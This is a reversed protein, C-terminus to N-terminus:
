TEDRRRIGVVCSRPVGDPTGEVNSPFNSGLGVSRQQMFIEGDLNLLEIQRSLSTTGGDGIPNNEGPHQIALLLQDDILTPGTMECRTPGYAFPVVKGADPGSTPTFFLWNNGFVGVLADTAGTASHDITREGPNGGTRFGNHRNTPMDTVTWLNDQADFLLNDANAFGAGNEAGAEGGLVFKSWTFTAGSGDASDEVIKYIGGSPQQAAADASLKAVQFIRSDPFGDSGAINDTFAIFVEKTTPQVEIDEPRGCPTGGVLNSALFADIYIAGRLTTSITM